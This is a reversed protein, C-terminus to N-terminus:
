SEGAQAEAKSSLHIALQVRRALEPDLDRGDARVSRNLTLIARDMQPQRHAVALAHIERISLLDSEPAALRGRGVAWLATDVDEHDIARDALVCAADVIMSVMDTRLTQAWHWQFGLSGLPVGRVLRLAQRLAASSAGNVGGALLAEFREWDSSVREDLSIRGSYADPLYQAGEKDSGLWTRLRSMNSRRTTEAVLLDHVMVTPTAGPNSLLWACYEMCAALARQPPEGATGQLDVEGLLLLTPHIADPPEPM